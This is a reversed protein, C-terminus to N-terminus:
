HHRRSHAMGLIIWIKEIKKTKAVFLEKLALIYSQM